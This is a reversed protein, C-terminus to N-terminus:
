LAGGYIRRIRKIIEWARIGGLTGGFPNKEILSYNYVYKRDGDLNAEPPESYKALAHGGGCTCMCPFCDLFSAALYAIARKVDFRTYEELDVDTVYHVRISNPEGRCGDLTNYTEPECVGTDPNIRSPVPIVIGHKSEIVNLCAMQTESTCSHKFIFEGSECENFNEYYVDVTELYLFSDNVALPKIDNGIWYIPKVIHYVFGYFRLTVGDLQLEYREIEINWDFVNDVVSAPYFVKFNDFELENLPDITIDFYFGDNVGSGSVTEYIYVPIDQAYVNYTRKGVRKVPYKTKVHYGYYRDCFAGWVGSSYSPYIPRLFDEKYTRVRYVSKNKYLHEEELYQENPYFGLMPVILNEARAIAESVSYRNFEQAIEFYQYVVSECEQPQNKLRPLKGGAIADSVRDFQFFEYLPLSHIKAFETISLAKTPVLHKRM